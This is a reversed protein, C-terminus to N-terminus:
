CHSQRQESCHYSPNTLITELSRLCCWLNRSRCPERFVSPMQIRASSGCFSVDRRMKERVCTTLGRLWLKNLYFTCSLNWMIHMIRFVRSACELGTSFTVVRQLQVLWVAGLCLIYRRAALRSQVVSELRTASLRRSSAFSSPLRPSGPSKFRTRRSTFSNYLMGYCATALSSPARMWRSLSSRTCCSIM